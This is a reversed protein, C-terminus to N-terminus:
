KNERMRIPTWKKLRKKIEKDDFWYDAGLLTRDIEEKTLFGQYIKYFWDKTSRSFHKSLSEMNQPKGQGPWMSPAHIMMSGGEEVMVEDCSLAIISGASHANLIVAKTSANTRLISSSLQLATDGDGGPTNIMFIFLDSDDAMGLQKYIERYNDASEVRADINVFYRNITIPNNYILNSNNFDDAM